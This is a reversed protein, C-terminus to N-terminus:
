TQNDCTLYTSDFSYITTDCRTSIGVYSFGIDVINQAVAEASVSSLSSKYIIEQGSQFGHNPIIFKDNSLDIITSASGVFEKYFIPTQKNKLKFSSLGVISGGITTTFGTFQNSIDDIMYVKNTKNLTYSRLATGELFYIREVSGDDLQDDEYVMAFNNKVSLDATNDINVLLFPDPNVAKVKMNTSKGVGLNLPGSTVIGTIVLDSFEKFGSPHVISKVSEKWTSYPIQGKISYSFKQYYDNDSIRQQYDNLFGVKDGFDNIKERFVNLDSDLSFKSVYKVTGNLKSKEGYLKDEVNLTGQVDILRLQNTDNDWGNEMVKASFTSGSIVREGSHYNADDTLVMQFEAMDKKNVVYGLTLLNNYNGFTGTQLGSMSYNVVFNTTNVGTVTFFNYGYDKSNFNSM